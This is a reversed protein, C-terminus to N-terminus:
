DISETHEPEIHKRIYDRYLRRATNSGASQMYDPISFAMIRNGAYPAAAEIQREIRSLPAPVAQFTEERGGEEPKQEFLEVVVSVICNTERTALNAADLYLSLYNLDLKKTGIGDQFYLIDISSEVLISQWFERFSEPDLRANSFASIGVATEPSIKKLDQALEALHELLIKRRVPENWSSDDIEESIYWGQFSPHSRAAPALENAIIRCHYRARRLYSELLEAPAKINNWFDPDHWLGIQVGIGTEDALKLIQEIPNPGEHHFTESPYFALESSVSWQVVLRSIQLTGFDDFLQRWDEDSWELHRNLLQLYTGDLHPTAPAQAITGPTSCVLLFLLVATLACQLRKGSHFGNTREATTESSFYV